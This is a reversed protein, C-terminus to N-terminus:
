YKYILLGGSFGAGFSIKLITDGRKIRGSKINEDMSIPLEASITNGYREYDEILKERPMKSAKLAALFLPKSPQHIFAVDIDDRTIESLRLGEDLCPPLNDYLAKHIIRPDGMFFSGHYEEPVRGTPISAKHPMTIMDHHQGDTFLGGALFHGPEKCREVLVGGAGDGFIARHMPNYFAPGRSVVTGAMVLVKNAGLAICKLAYDMGALWGVCSMGIDVSACTAGLKYQVVASTCPEFYDGPTASVIIRDLDTPLVEAEELVQKAARVILDSCQEDEAAARREVAGLLREVAGNTEELGPIDHNGVVREPLYAGTAAIRAPIDKYSFFM